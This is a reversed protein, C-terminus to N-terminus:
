PYSTTITLKYKKYTIILVLKPQNSKLVRRVLFARNWETNMMDWDGYCEGKKMGARNM